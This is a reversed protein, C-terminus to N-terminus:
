GSARGGRERVAVRPRGAQRVVGLASRPPRAGLDRARSAEKVATEMDGTALLAAGLILRADMNDPNKRLLNRMEIISERYRFKEMSVRADAIRQVETREESACAGLLFLLAILAPYRCYAFPIGTSSLSM